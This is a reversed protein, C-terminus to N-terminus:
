RGWRHCRNAALSSAQLISGYSQQQRGTRQIEVYFTQCFSFLNGLLTIPDQSMLLASTSMQSLQLSRAAATSAILGEPLKQTSSLGGIAIIRFAMLVMTGMLSGSAYKASCLWSLGFM